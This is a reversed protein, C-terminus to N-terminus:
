QPSAEYRQQESARKKLASEVEAMDFRVVKGSLKISPIIGNRAWRRVTEPTVKVHEAVQEATELNSM